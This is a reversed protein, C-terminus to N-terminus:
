EYQLDISEEDWRLKESPICPFGTRATHSRRKKTTSEVCSGGDNRASGLGESRPNLQSTGGQNTM